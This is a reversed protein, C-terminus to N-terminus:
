QRLGELAAEKKLHDALRLALAVITMTPTTSGGGSPFVSSGAVFLNSIGHVRCNRDVVGERPSDSMRTTGLHHYSGQMNEPWSDPSDDDPVNIKMRGLGSRGVEAALIRLSRLLSHKDQRTFKWHMELKQQGLIDRKDTLKVRSEPNPGQALQIQLRLAVLKGLSGFLGEKDNFVTKYGLDIVSEFDGLINLIHQGFRDPFKVRSLSRAIAKASEAGPSLLPKLTFHVHVLREARLVDHTLSLVGRPLRVGNEGFRPFYLGLRLNDPDALAILAVDKSQVHEMFFRGVLDHGNGLGAPQSGRSLLLIRANEIGGMALVYSKAAVTFRPGDITAVRLRSVRSADGATVLELANANLYVAINGARTLDNRYKEAFRTPTSFQFIETEFKAKDFAIEPLGTRDRWFETTYDNPALNLIPRTREYYPEVEKRTIPWGSHPVWDRNEFGDANYPRCWGRWHNTTGGFYRLRPYDLPFYPYGTDDGVYLSQTKEDYEMGGSELLCVRIDSGTLETAITIGAAGAGIVCIDTEIQEGDPLKRADQIM